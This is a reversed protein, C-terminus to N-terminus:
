KKVRQRAAELAAKAAEAKNTTTTTVVPEAATEIAAPVVSDKKEEDVAQKDGWGGVKTDAPAYSTAKAPAYTTTHQAVQPQVTASVRGVARSRTEEKIWEPHDRWAYLIASAPFGDQVLHAQEQHTFFQLSNEWSKQKAKLIREFDPTNLPAGYGNWTKEIAIDYGSFSDKKNAYNGRPGTNVALTRPQTPAAATNQQLDAGEQFITVYAGHELSVIDGYKYANNYDEPEGTFDPNREELMSVLKEGATIPLEMFYCPDGSSLGLPSREATAMDKNNIKFIVARVLYVEAHKSLPARKGPGGNLLAPWDPECQRASISNHIAKRLIVCPNSNIDYHPNTIPDNLLMSIGREGFGRVATYRRIWDGFHNTEPSVRFPSWSQSDFDWSPIIRITTLTRNWSPKRIEGAGKKLIYNGFENSTSTTAHDAFRYAPKSQTM